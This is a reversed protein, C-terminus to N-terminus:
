EEIDGYRKIALRLYRASDSDKKKIFCCLVVLRRAGKDVEEVAIYHRGSTTSITRLEYIDHADHRLKKKHPELVNEFGNNRILDVCRRFKVKHVDPMKDFEEKAKEHFKVKYTIEAEEM